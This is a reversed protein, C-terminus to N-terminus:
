LESLLPLKYSKAATDHFLLAKEADSFDRTIRKFSNWIVSYSYSNKDVPFNSEFMSRSPGFKEICYNITPAMAAALEESGIPKERLHWDNGVSPMGIGGLKIVINPQEAAATIGKRWAELVEDQRGAYVGTGLLGGVHCLIITLDPVAKAFRALEEMQSFFMWGELTHGMGALIKAGARFNASSMQEKAKNAATNPVAPNDDWTVSHRIGRFRNPSAAQLAELM